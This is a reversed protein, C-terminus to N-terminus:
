RRRAKLLFLFSGWPGRSANDTLEMDKLRANRMKRQSPSSFWLWSDQSMASAVPVLLSVRAVTSLAAVIASLQLSHPLNINELPRGEYRRVVLALAMISGISIISALLEFKWWSFISTSTKGQLVPQLGNDDNSPVSDYNSYINNKAPFESSYEPVPRSSAGDEQLSMQHDYQQHEM